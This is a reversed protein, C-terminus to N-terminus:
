DSDMAGKLRYNKERDRGITMSYGRSRETIRSSIALDIDEIESLYRESSIITPLRNIYRHNLVEYALRVDAATPPKPRGFEDKIPKFFDDIYLVRVNKLRGVAEAYEEDDNVIAKIRTSESPWTMYALGMHRERMLAGAVATCIHTKGCGVAGGYFLWAGNEAGEACYREAIDKMRRQWDTPTKFVKFTCREVSEALGSRKIRWISRRVEMCECEPYRVYLYGYRMEVHCVHGRNLCIPCDYESADLDGRTQNYRQAREKELEYIGKPAQAMAEGFRKAM